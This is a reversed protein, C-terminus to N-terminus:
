DTTAKNQRSVSLSSVHGIIAAQRKLPKSHGAYVEGVGAVRSVRSGHDHCTEPHPIKAQMDSHQKRILPNGFLSHREDSGANTLRAM